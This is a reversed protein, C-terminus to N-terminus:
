RSPSAGPVPVGPQAPYTLGGDAQFTPVSVPSLESPIASVYETGPVTASLAPGEIGAGSQFAVGPPLRPWAVNEPASDGDLANTNKVGPVANLGFM